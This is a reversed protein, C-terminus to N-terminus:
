KMRVPGWPQEKKNDQHKEKDFYLTLSGNPNQGAEEDLNDVIGDFLKLKFEHHM